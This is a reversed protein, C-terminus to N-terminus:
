EVMLPWLLLADSDRLGPISIVLRLGSEPVFLGIELAYPGPELEPPLDITYKDVIVEGSLWYNTPYAGQQPSIDQQWVCCSGDQNLLHVFVTYGDLPETQAQWVLTLEHRRPEIQVLDYGLLQIENGFTAALPHQTRPPEFLHEATEVTLPGLDTTMITEDERDLLRLSLL